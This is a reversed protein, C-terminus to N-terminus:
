GSLKTIYLVTGTEGNGYYTTGAVIISNSHPVRDMAYLANNAASNPSKAVTGSGPSKVVSWQKGDWHEMLPVNTGTEYGVFWVDNTALAAVDSVSIYFNGIGPSKVISWQKGDWHM